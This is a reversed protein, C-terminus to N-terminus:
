QAAANRWERLWSKRQEAMEKASFGIRTPEILQDFADPLTIGDRVPLMWNTVPIIQQAEDSTLFAIFNRALEPNDATKTIAALEIQAVHGESFPAAKYHGTQENVLHYAPSTTYSLVMDAEGNTFMGYAESWGRTVTVIRPKLKRWAEAAGEGYVERMWLVLGLGPSSTRPDQIVITPGDEDAILDALAAAVIGGGAWSAESALSGKDIILVKAGGDALERATMMGIVGGGVILVDPNAM